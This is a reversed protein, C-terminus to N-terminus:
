VAIHKTPPFIEKLSVMCMLSTAAGKVGTAGSGVGVSNGGSPLLTAQDLTGERYVLTREEDGGRRDDSMRRFVKDFMRDHVRHVPMGRVHFHDPVKGVGIHFGVADIFANYTLLHLGDIRPFPLRPRVPLQQQLAPAAPKPRDGQLREGRLRHEHLGSSPQPAVHFAYEKWPGGHGPPSAVPLAVFGLVAMIPELDDHTLMPRFTKTHWLALKKLREEM